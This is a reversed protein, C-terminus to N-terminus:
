GEIYHDTALHLGLGVRLVWVETATGSFLLTASLAYSLDVRVPFFTLGVQTTLILMSAPKVCNGLTLARDEEPHALVLSKDSAM